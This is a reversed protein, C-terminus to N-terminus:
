VSLMYQNILAHQKHPGHNSPLTKTHGATRDRGFLYTQMDENVFVQIGLEVGKSGLQHGARVQRARIGHAVGDM